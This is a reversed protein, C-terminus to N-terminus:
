LVDKVFDCHLNKMSCTWRPCLSLFDAGGVNKTFIDSSMHVNAIWQVAIVGGEKIERLFNIRTSVHRTRGTVSWSNVLDVAGRNDMELLMPMQVKLGMSELFRKASLM